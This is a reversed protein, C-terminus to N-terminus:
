GSIIQIVKELFMSLACLSFFGFMYKSKKSIVEDQITGPNGVSLAGISILGMYIFMTFNLIAFVYDM